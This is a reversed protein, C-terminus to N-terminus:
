CFPVVRNEHSSQEALEILRIVNRAEEAQVLLPTNKNGLLVEHLNQFFVGYDGTESQVTGEM